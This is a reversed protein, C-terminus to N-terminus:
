GHSTAEMRTGATSSATRASGRTPSASTQDHVRQTVAFWLDAYPRQQGHITFTAGPQHMWRNGFRDKAAQEVSDVRTPDGLQIRTIGLSTLAHDEGYLGGVRMRLGCEEQLFVLDNEDLFQKDGHVLYLHECLARLAAFGDDWRGDVRPSVVGYATLDTHDGFFAGGRGAHELDGGVGDDFVLLGLGNDVDTVMEGNGDGDLDVAVRAGKALQLGRGQLDFVLPSLLESAANGAPVFDSIDVTVPREVSTPPPPPVYAPPPCAEAGHDGFLARVPSTWSSWRDRLTGESRPPTATAGYGGQAGGADAAATAAEARGTSRVSKAISGTLKELITESARNKNRGERIGTGLVKNLAERGRKGTEQQLIQRVEKKAAAFDPANRIRAVEEPTFTVSRTSKEPKEGAPLVRAEAQQLKGKYHRDSVAGWFGPFPGLTGSGLVRRWQQGRADSARLSGDVDLPAGKRSGTAGSRAWSGSDAKGQVSGNNIRM